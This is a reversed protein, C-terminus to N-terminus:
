HKAYIRRWLFTIVDRENSGLSVLQYINQQSLRLFATLMAICYVIYGLTSAFAAGDIGWKPIMFIDGALMVVVGLSIALFGLEPKGRGAIDGYIVSGLAFAIGGPILIQLSTSASSFDAGYLFEIFFNSGVFLVAGSLMGVLLTVHIASNTVETAQKPTLRSIRAFLVLTLALSFFRIMESLSLATSYIGLPAAGLFFVVLFQDARLNLYTILGNAYSRLGYSTFQKFLIPDVRLHVPGILRRLRYLGVATAAVGGLVFAWTFGIIHGGAIMIIVGAILRFVLEAIALLNYGVFDELAAFFHGLYMRFLAVPIYATIIVVASISINKLITPELSVIILGSMVAVPVGILLPMLYITGAVYKPTYIKKGIYYIASQGLGLNIVLTIVASISVLLVYIGRGEPGLSRSVVVSLLLGLIAGSIQGAM